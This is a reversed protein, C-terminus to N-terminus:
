VPGAMSEMAAAGIALGLQAVCGILPVFFAKRHRVLRIVAIVVTAIFVAGGGGIGSVMARDIWAPDGCHRSGCPDTVMVLLGLLAVTVGVLFAHVVLLLVTATVDVPRGSRSDQNASNMAKADNV